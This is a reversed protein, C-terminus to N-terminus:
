TVIVWRQLAKRIQKIFKNRRADNISIYGDDMFVRTPAHRSVSIATENEFVKSVAPFPM